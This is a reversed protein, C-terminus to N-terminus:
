SANMTNRFLLAPGHDMRNEGWPIGTKQYWGVGDVWGALAKRKVQKWKEPSLLTIL